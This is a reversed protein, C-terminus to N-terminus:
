DFRTYFADKIHNVWLKETYVEVVDFRVCRDEWGNLMLYQMAVRSITAQKKRTVAEAPTGFRDNKRTKVEVFVIADKDQMILDIEGARTRYRAALKKMGHRQLYECALNEGAQGVTRNHDAM